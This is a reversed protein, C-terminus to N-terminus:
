IATSCLAPADLRRRTSNGVFGLPALAQEANVTLGRLEHYDGSVVPAAFTCRSVDVGSLSTKFVDMRTLDCGDLRIQGLKTM